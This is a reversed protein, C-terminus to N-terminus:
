FCFAVSVGKAADGRSTYCSGNSISLWNSGDANYPSRTLWEAQSGNLNKNNSGGQRYYAYRTGEGGIAYYVGSGFVEDVSLLFLRDATTYHTYGGSSASTACLKNVEKIGAQVESPMQALITPMHTNRMVSDRWGGKNTHSSNMAYRTVYCDHMMFTLPAKGSGDSYDDHNTGIIDIQYSAGNITMAKQNGVVWTSPVANNQCAWIIASWDNDSFNSVLTPVFSVTYNTGNVKTKGNDIKYGTGNVKTRGGSIEYATGNVKTKHGM